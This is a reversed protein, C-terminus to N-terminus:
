GLDTLRHLETQLGEKEARLAQIQQAISGLAQTELEGEIANDDGSTSEEFEAPLTTLREELEIIKADIDAIRQEIAIKDM